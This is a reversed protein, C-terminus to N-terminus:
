GGTTQKKEIQIVCKMCGEHYVKEESKMFKPKPTDWQNSFPSENWKFRTGCYACRTFLWRRLQQWPHVQIQWHHIHWYPSKYWPRSARLIWGYIVHAFENVRDQKDPPFFRTHLKTANISHHLSDVSNESFLLIEYLNKQMFKSVKDRSGFHEYAALHFMNITIGMPSFIPDGQENFWTNFEGEFRKIIKELVKKDGHRSRMFRGCSDDSGDKCPDKHWVTVISPYYKHKGMIKKPFPSKIEFLVSLPDHM